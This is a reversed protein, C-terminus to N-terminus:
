GDVVVCSGSGNFCRDVMGRELVLSADGSTGLGDGFILLSCGVAFM